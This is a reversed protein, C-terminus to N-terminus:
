AKVSAAASGQAGLLLLVILPVFLALLWPIREAMTSLLERWFSTMADGGQGMMAVSYMTGFIFNYVIQSGHLVTLAVTLLGSVVLRRKTLFSVALALVLAASVSFGVAYVFEKGFEGFVAQHLVAEWYLLAFMWYAAQLAAPLVKKWSTHAM